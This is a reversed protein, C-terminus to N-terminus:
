FLFSSISPRIMSPFLFTMDVTVVGGSRYAATVDSAVRLRLMPIRVWRTTTVVPSTVAVLTVNWSCVLVTGPMAITTMRTVSMMNIVVAILSISTVCPDAMARRIMMRSMLMRVAMRAMMMTTFSALLSLQLVLVIIKSINLVIVKTVFFVLFGLWGIRVSGRRLRGLRLFRFRCIFRVRFRRLFRFRGIGRLRGRRLFIGAVNYGMVGMSWLNNMFWVIMVVMVIMMVMVVSRMMTTMMAVWMMAVMVIMVIVVVVMIIMVSRMMSRMVSRMVIVIIVVVVVIIVVSRVVSRMVFRMVVMVIVVVPFMIGSMSTTMM